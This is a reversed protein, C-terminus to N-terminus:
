PPLVDDLPPGDGFKAMEDHLREYHEVWRIEGSSLGLSKYTEARASGKTRLWDILGRIAQLLERKRPEAEEAILRLLEVHEDRTLKESM